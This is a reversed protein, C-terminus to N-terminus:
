IIIRGRGVSRSLLGKRLACRLLISKLSDINCPISTALSIIQNNNSHLTVNQFLEINLELPTFQRIHKPSTPSLIETVTQATEAMEKVLCHKPKQGYFSASFKSIEKPLKDFMLLLLIVAFIYCYCRKFQEQQVLIVKMKSGM